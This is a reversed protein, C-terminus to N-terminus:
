TDMKPSRYVPEFFVKQNFNFDKLGGMKPHLMVIERQNEQDKKYEGNGLRIFFPRLLYFVEPNEPNKVQIVPLKDPFLTGDIQEKMSMLEIEDSYTNHVFFVNLWSTSNNFLSM